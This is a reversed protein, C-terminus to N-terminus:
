NNIATLTNKYLEINQTVDYSQLCFICKLAGNLFAFDVCHIKEKLLSNIKEASV